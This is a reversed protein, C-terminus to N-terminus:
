SESKGITSVHRAVVIMCQYELNLWLLLVLFVVILHLYM